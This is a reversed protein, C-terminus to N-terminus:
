PRMLGIKKITYEVSQMYRMTTHEQIVEPLNKIETQLKTGHMHTGFKKEFLDVLKAKHKIGGQKYEM